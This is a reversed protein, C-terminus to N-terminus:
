PVAPSTAMTDVNGMREDANAAAAATLLARHSTSASAAACAALVSAKSYSPMSPPSSSGTSFGNLATLSNTRSATLLLQLLKREFTIRGNRLASNPNWHLRHFRRRLPELLLPSSERSPPATGTPPYSSLTLLM